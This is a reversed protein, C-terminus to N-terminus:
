ATLNVLEATVLSVTWASSAGANVSLGIGLNNVNVDFSAGTNLKFTNSAVTSLGTTILRHALRGLAQIVASAGAARFVCDVEFTGEDIVGTQTDFTLAARALDATTGATGVRVSIVPAQTGGATKVVNFKCRYITGVKVKGQPILIRSGALYTDGTGLTQNATSANRQDYTRALLTAISFNLSNIDLGIETILDALRSQLSM